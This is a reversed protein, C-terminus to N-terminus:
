WKPIRFNLGSKYSDYLGFTQFKQGTMIEFYVDLNQLVSASPISFVMVNMLELIVVVYNM